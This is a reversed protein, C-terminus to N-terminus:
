DGTIVTESSGPQAFEHHPNKDGTEDSLRPQDTEYIKPDVPKKEYAADLGFAEPTPWRYYADRNM